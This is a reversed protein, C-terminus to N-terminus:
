KGEASDMEKDVNKALEMKQFNEEDSIHMKFGQTMDIEATAEKVSVQLVHGGKTRDESIFHFHWGTTNLGGMYDPCYLAVLTGNIDDFEFEKQTEALAENLMKYPRTQKSESRAQIHSFTGNVKVVYFMNKNQQTIKDLEAKLADFDEIDKLELTTDTDFFTVNSFPVMTDGDAKTIDGNEDARYVEGDLVIMEGDVGDFTGLGTDGKEKLADVSIIGDYYGQVLSQLLAVQYVTERSDASTPEETDNAPDAQPAETTEAEETTVDETEAPTDAAPATEAQSEAPASTAATTEAKSNDAANNDASNSGCGSMMTGCLTLSLLFALMKKNNM